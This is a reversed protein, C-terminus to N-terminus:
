GQPQHEGHETSQWGGRTPRAEDSTLDLLPLTDDLQIPLELGREELRDHLGASLRNLDANLRASRLRLELAAAHKADAKPQPHLQDLQEEVEAIRHVLLQSQAVLAYLTQEVEATPDPPAAAPASRARQVLTRLRELPSM